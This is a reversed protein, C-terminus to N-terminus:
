KEAKGGLLERLVRLRSSDSGAFRRGLDAQRKRDGASPKPVAARSLGPPRGPRSRAGLDPQDQSECWEDPRFVPEEGYGLWVPRVGQIDGQGTLEGIGPFAGVLANDSEALSIRLTGGNGDFGPSTQTLNSGMHMLDQWVPRGSSTKGDPVERNIVPLVTQTLCDGAAEILPMAKGLGAELEPLSGTVPGLRDVLAPLERNKGAARLERL